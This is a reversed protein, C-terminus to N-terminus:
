APVRNKQRLSLFFGSLIRACKEKLIGSAVEVSHNLRHDECLRYLSEVAGGKSDHCGFVLSSIRAQLIAGTCMICPELTVYLTCDELRWSGISAAAERLALIEAHSTPEQLEERQNHGRGIIEGQHVVVAGVPVEDKVLAKEAEALAVEMFKKHNIKSGNGTTAM